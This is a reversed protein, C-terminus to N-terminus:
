AFYAWRASSMGVFIQESAGTGHLTHIMLRDLPIIIANEHM